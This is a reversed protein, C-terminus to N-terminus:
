GGRFNVVFMIVQNGEILNEGQGLLYFFDLALVVHHWYNKNCENINRRYSM